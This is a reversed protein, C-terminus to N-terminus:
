FFSLLFRPFPGGSLGAEGCGALFSSHLREWSTRRESPGFSGSFCGPPAGCPAARGRAAAPNAWGAWRKGAAMGAAGPRGRRALAGDMWGDLDGGKGGSAPARASLMARDDFAIYKGPARRLTRCLASAARKGCGAGRAISWPSKFGYGAEVNEGDARRRDCFM